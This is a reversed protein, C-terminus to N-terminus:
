ASSASHSLLSCADHLVLPCSLIDCADLVVVVVRLGPDATGLGLFGTLSSGGEEIRMSRACKSGPSCKGRCVRVKPTFSFIDCADLVVVAVRLGPDETGLGLFGALCGCGDKTRMSVASKNGPSSLGRCDRLLPEVTLAAENCVGGGEEGRIGISCLVVVLSSKGERFRFRGESSTEESPNALLGTCSNDLEGGTASM